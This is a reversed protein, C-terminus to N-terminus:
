KSGTKQTATMSGRGRHPPAELREIERDTFLDSAAGGDGNPVLSEQSTCEESEAVGHAEEKSM